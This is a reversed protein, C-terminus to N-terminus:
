HTRTGVALESAVGDRGAFVRLPAGPDPLVDPIVFRFGSRSLGPQGYKAAVDPRHGSVIAIFLFQRGQFVAVGEAPLQIAPLRRGHSMPPLKVSGHPFHLM